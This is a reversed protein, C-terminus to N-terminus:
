PLKLIRRISNYLMTSWIESAAKCIETDIDHFEDEIAALDEYSVVDSSDAM